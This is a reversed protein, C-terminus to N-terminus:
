ATLALVGGFFGRPIMGVEDVAEDDGNMPKPLDCSFGLVLM